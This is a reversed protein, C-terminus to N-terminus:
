TSQYRFTEDYRGNSYEYCGYKHIAKETVEGSEMLSLTLMLSQPLEFEWQLGELTSFKRIQYPLDMWM